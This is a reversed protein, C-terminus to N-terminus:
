CRNHVGEIADGEFLSKERTVDNLLVLQNCLIRLVKERRDYKEIIIICITFKNIKYILNYTGQCQSDMSLITSNYTGQSCNNYYL